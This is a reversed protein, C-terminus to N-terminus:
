PIMRNKWNSSLYIDFRHTSGKVQTQPPLDLLAAAKLPRKVVIRSGCLRLASAFLGRNNDAYDQKETTRQYSTGITPHRPAVLRHLMETEKKVKAKRGVENSEYMPDLYIGLTAPDIERISPSTTDYDIIDTRQLLDNWDVIDM